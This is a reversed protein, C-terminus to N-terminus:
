CEVGHKRLRQTFAKMLGTNRTSGPVPQAYTGDPSTIKLHKGRDTLVWGADLAADVAKRLDKPIKPDRTTM